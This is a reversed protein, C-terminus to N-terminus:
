PSIIACQQAKGAFVSTLDRSERTRTNFIRLKVDKGFPNSGTQNRVIFWVKEMLNIPQSSWNDFEDFTLQQQESGNTEHPPTRQGYPPQQYIWKAM